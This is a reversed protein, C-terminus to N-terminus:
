NGLFLPLIVKRMERVGVAPVFLDFSAYEPKLTIAAGIYSTETPVPKVGDPLNFPLGPMAKFLGLMYDAMVHTFKGADTLFLMTAEAPLQQRTAKFAPEEALTTRGDLYADIQAKAANWDAATVTLYRRGDTGFWVRMGEGMLKKMAAKVGEGGGPVSEALKDLDWEFRAHSLKFGKYTEANERIEPKGKLYAGQVTGGEAM